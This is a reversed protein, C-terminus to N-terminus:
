RRSWYFGGGGLVLVLLAIILITEISMAVELAAPTARRGARAPYRRDPQVRRAGDGKRAPRSM